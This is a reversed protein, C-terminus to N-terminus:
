KESLTKNENPTTAPQVPPQAAPEPSKPSPDVIDKKSKPRLEPKWIFGTLLSEKDEQDLPDVAGEVERIAVIHTLEKQEFRFRLRSSVTQSVNDYEGQENKTFYISEANGDVYMNRLEGEHLFGTIIKGKIQNFKTSDGETNVIFGNHLVQFAHIKKNKFFVHITDGTQQTGDSWLIPEKYWRLSSDAASYFLSDAKAQMNSKYMRVNHYAKIIRAKVTDAPHTNISDKPLNQIPNVANKSAEKNLANQKQHALSDTLPQAVLTSDATIETINETLQPIPVALTDRKIGDIATNLAVTDPITLKEEPPPSTKRGRKNNKKSKPSSVPIVPKAAAQAQQLLKRAEAKEKEKELKEQESEAGVENDKKVIPVELVTLDKVLARQSELTDATLWLTDPIKQDNITISDKTGLGMYANQTAIIREDSKYYEGLHGRLLTHDTTDKFVINKVAKGYGKKGYYYLSDGKLSRSGNTYLNNKGFYANESKTNYAGNETYLNDDKNKINTPGYFYTWNSATNYRLDESTITAKEATVVLVNIKFYADRSNSFYFGTKSTITADKNVLKGGTKYDGIKAAMDYDLINTTLTNERDVLKVNKNLHAKKANGDYNLFESYINLTDGQNIHVNGFAEFFNREDYLVASDCTLIAGDHSFIPKRLYHTGLSPNGSAREATELKIKTRTQAWLLFPFFILFSILLLKRM